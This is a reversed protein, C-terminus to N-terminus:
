NIYKEQKFDTCVNNDILQRYQIWGRFNGSWMDTDKGLGIHTVGRAVKNDMPTAIHEVPSAHVPVNTILQDYIKVAKGLSDNLTRYSVQACCSSSVKKAEELSLEGRTRDHENKNFYQGNTKYIYPLHWEGPQLFVPSSNNYEEYMISALSKIEPQADEHCRLWFFNDFETATVITKIMQFPELVRNVIQKHLGLDKLVQASGLASNAAVRWAM